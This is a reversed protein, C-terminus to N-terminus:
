LKKKSCLLDLSSPCVQPHLKNCHGKCGKEGKSGWRMFLTCRKRHLDKCVGGRKGSIGYPCEGRSFLPCDLKQETVTPLQIQASGSVINPTGGVSHSNSVNMAAMRETIDDIFGAPNQNAAQTDVTNLAVTQKRRLPQNPVGDPGLATMMSYHPSCSHCLWTLSGHLTSLTASAEGLVEKLCDEHIGQYCGACQLTPKAERNVSYIQRCGGCEDPLLREVAVPLARALDLKKKFSRTGEEGSLNYLWSIAERLLPVTFKSSSWENIMDSKDPSWVSLVPKIAVPASTVLEGLGAVLEERSVPGPNLEIDGALSLLMRKVLAQTSSCGEIMFCLLIAQFLMPSLMM